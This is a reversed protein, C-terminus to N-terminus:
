AETAFGLDERKFFSRLEEMLAYFLLETPERSSRSITRELELLEAMIVIGEVQDPDDGSGVFVVISRPDIGAAIQPETARPQVTIPAQGVLHLLPDPLDEIVEELLGRLEQVQGFSLERPPAPFDLESVQRMAARSGDVDGAAQRAIALQYHFDADEPEARVVQEMVDVAQAADGM